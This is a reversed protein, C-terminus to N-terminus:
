AGIQKPAYNSGVGKNMQVRQGATMGLQVSGEIVTQKRGQSKQINPFLESVKKDVLTKNSIVLASSQSEFIKQQADFRKTIELLAGHYWGKKFMTKERKTLEGFAKLDQKYLFDLQQRLSHYLYTVVQQNVKNGVVVSRGKGHLAIARCFNYKACITILTTLSASGYSMLEIAGVPTEEEREVSEAVSVNYEQCLKQIKAAAAAAEELTAGRDVTKRSLKSIFNLVQEKTLM